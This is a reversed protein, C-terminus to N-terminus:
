AKKEKDDEKAIKAAPKQMPAKMGQVPKKLTAMGPEHDMAERLLDADTMGAKKDEEERGSDGTFSINAEEWDEDANFSQRRRGESRGEEEEEEEEKQHDEPFGEPQSDSRMENEIWCWVTEQGKVPLFALSTRPTLNTKRLEQLFTWDLYRRLPAWRAPLIQCVHRLYALEMVKLPALALVQDKDQREVM